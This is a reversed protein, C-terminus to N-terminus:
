GLLFLHFRKEQALSIVRAIIVLMLFRFRFYVRVAVVM